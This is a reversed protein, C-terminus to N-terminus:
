GVDGYEVAARLVKAAGISDGKDALTGGVALLGRGAEAKKDTAEPYVRSVFVAMAAYVETPTKDALGESIHDFMCKRCLMGARENGLLEAQRFLRAAEVFDQRVGLGRAYLSALNYLATENQGLELVSAYADAASGYDGADFAVQGLVLLSRAVEEQSM